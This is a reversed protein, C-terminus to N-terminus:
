LVDGIPRAMIPPIGHVGVFQTPLEAPLCLVSELCSEGARDLPVESMTMPPLADQVLGVTRRVSQVQLAISARWSKPRQLSAQGHGPQLRGPRRRLADM